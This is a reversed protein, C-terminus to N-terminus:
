KFRIIRSRYPSWRIATPVFLLILFQILTEELNQIRCCEHIIFIKFHHWLWIVFVIKNTGSNTRIIVPFYRKTPISSFKRHINEDVKSWRPFTYLIGDASKWIKFRIGYRKASISIIALFYITDSARSFAFNRGTKWSIVRIISQFRYSCIM